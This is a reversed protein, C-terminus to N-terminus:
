RQLLLLYADTLSVALAAASQHSEGDGLHRDPHYQRLQARYAREIQSRTAGPSLELHAYAKSVQMGKLRARRTSNIADLEEDAAPRRNATKGRLRRRRELEIGLSDDTIRAIGLKDVLSAPADRGGPSRAGPGQTGGSSPPEIADRIGKNIRDWITM